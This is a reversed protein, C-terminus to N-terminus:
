RHALKGTIGGMSKSKGDPVMFLQLGKEATMYPQEVKYYGRRELQIIDNKQLTQLGADGIVDTCALTNPNIFDKFDEDEELKAKSILNDFEHLTVTLTDAVDAMWSLKRKAAKFDGDPIFEGEFNDGDIKLIKIVGWRMLGINEGEVIGDTDAKELLVNNAIRIHRKGYSPDKPMYDTSIFANDDASPANTVTLKVNNTKDIAMFRKARVDIEKKNEAWFKGWEMNVVRRSAGQSLIFTRLSKLDVGRRLVGRITPFRPDDWGTVHNNEVFWTLKRKSLETYMFNLRSFSHIRTRRLSFASQIWQYQEDRDNYETTRLAHTVGEISDVIPCALDYTPYAKYTTGSRHHPLINQRYLVPDRMTGNDSSMDIKARLCWKGGEEDGTCMLKFYNKCDQVSQERHKSNVRDMREKQMEEQPTDDMYALGNEILYNAYGKITEFYDSTFTVVDPKVGLMDLDELIATQFEEKEKSPNTDDFRVILRGKYRRAFYENMLVAKAHGIHLYGSPEPPFRTVVNGMTAGELPSMGSVLPDMTSNPDFVPEVNSIGLALQTAERIAPCSRIMKLWRLTPTSDSGIISEVQAVDTAQSPFGMAAFLAVDALSMTHGVIYTKEKLLRDLTTAIAKVRRIQQFKSLSNAYDIWSDIVAAQEFDDGIIANGIISQSKRAIYRAIAADGALEGRGGPLGLAATRRTHDSVISYDNITNSLCAIALAIVPRETLSANPNFSIQMPRLKSRSPIIIKKAAPATPIAKATTPADGKAASKTQAKDAKKAAKKKAGASNPDAAQKGNVNVIVAAKAAKEAKDKKKKESKSMPEEWPKGDVGIGNNTEAYSRKADLLEKVTKGIADKDVPVTKKLDTIKQALANVKEQLEELHAVVM